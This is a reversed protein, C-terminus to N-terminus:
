LLGCADPGGQGLFAWLRGLIEFKAVDRGRKQGFASPLGKLLQRGMIRTHAFSATFFWSPGAPPATWNKPSTPWRRVEAAMQWRISSAFRRRRTIFACPWRLPLAGCRTNANDWAEACRIFVGVAATDDRFSVTKDQWWIVWSDYPAVLTPVRGAPELYQDIYEEGRSHNLRHTPQFRKKEGCLLATCLAIKGEGTEQAAYVREQADVLRGRGERRRAPM